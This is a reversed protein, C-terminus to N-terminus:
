GPNVPRPPIEVGANGRAFARVEGAPQRGCLQNEEIGHGDAVPAVAKVDSGSQSARARGIRVEQHGAQQVVTPFARAYAEHM